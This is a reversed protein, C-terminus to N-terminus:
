KANDLRRGTSGRHRHSCHDYENGNACPISNGPPDPKYDCQDSQYCRSCGARMEDSLKEITSLDIGVIVRSRFDPEARHIHYSVMRYEADAEPLEDVYRFAKSQRDFTCDCTIQFASLHRMVFIQLM